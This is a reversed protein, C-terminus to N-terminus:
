SAPGYSLVLNEVLLRWGDVLVFLMLKLPLSVITPQLYHMGVAMLVNSVILDIVLFPVFLMFGIQFAETLETLVFAPVLVTLTQVLESSETPASQGSRSAALRVFLVQNERSAHRALFARLPGRVAAELAAGAQALRGGEGRDAPRGSPSLRPAEARITRAIQEGVPWMVHLTLIMALGTVVITPPTQQLGLASRAMSLVVVIKVFSTVMALAFPALALLALAVVWWAISQMSPEASM